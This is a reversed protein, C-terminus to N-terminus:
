QAPADTVMNGDSFNTQNDRDDMFDNPDQPSGDPRLGTSGGPYVRLIDNNVSYRGDLGACHLQYTDGNIFNKTFVANVPNQVVWPRVSVDPTRAAPLGAGAAPVGSQNGALNAPVVHFQYHTAEIYIYYSEGAHRPKIGGGPGPVIRADEIGTYKRKASPSTFPYRADGTTQTLWFWLASSQDLSDANNFIYQIDALSAKPYAKMIYRGLRTNSWTGNSFQTQYYTVNTGGEGFSPPYIGGNESRYREIAEGLQAIEFGNASRRATKVAGWGAPILIAALIAIITIVVLMEVLTFGSRRSSTREAM